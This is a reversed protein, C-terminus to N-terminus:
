FILKQNSHDSQQELVKATLSGLIQSVSRSLDYFGNNNM